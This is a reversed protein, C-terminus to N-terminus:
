CCHYLPEIITQPTLKRTTNEYVDNYHQSFLAFLIFKIKRSDMREYTTCGTM